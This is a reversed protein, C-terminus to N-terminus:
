ISRKPDEPTSQKPKLQNKLHIKIHELFAPPLSLSEKPCLLRVGLATFVSPQSLSFAPLRSPASIVPCCGGLRQSHHQTVIVSLPKDAEVRHSLVFSVRENEKWM